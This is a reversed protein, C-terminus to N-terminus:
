RHQLTQKFNDVNNTLKDSVFGFYIVNSMDKLTERFILYAGFGKMVFLRNM